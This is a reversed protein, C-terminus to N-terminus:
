MGAPAMMTQGVPNVPAMMTKATRTSWNRQGPPPVQKALPATPYVPQTSGGVGLATGPPPPTGPHSMRHPEAMPAQPTPSPATQQRKASPKAAVTGKQPVMGTGTRTIERPHGGIQGIEQELGPGGKYVRGQQQLVGEFHKKAQQKAAADGAHRAGHMETMLEPAKAGTLAHRLQRAGPLQSISAGGTHGTMRGMFNKAAPSLKSMLVNAAIKELEDYFSALTVSALM